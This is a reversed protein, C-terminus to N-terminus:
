PDNSLRTSSRPGGGSPGVGAQFLAPASQEMSQVTGGRRRLEIVWIDQAEAGPPETPHDASCSGRNVRSRHSMWEGDHLRGRAHPAVAAAQEIEVLLVDHFVLLVTQRTM